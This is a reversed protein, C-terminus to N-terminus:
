PSFKYVRVYDIYAKDIGGNQIFTNKTVDGNVWTNVGWCMGTFLIYEAVHAIAKPDSTQWVVRGNFYYKLFTKSWELGFIHYTTDHMNTAKVSGNGAGKHDNGYGDWHLGCSYTNLKNGEIIDIEAGDNATGDHPGANTMSTGSNPMLWFATQYGNPKVVHMKTEFFGYATSYKEKSNFRGVYYLNSGVGPAKNYNLYINGNKEEVNNESSRITIDNNYRVYSREVTWKLTDIQNDNFEDSFALQWKELTTSGNMLPKSTTPTGKDVFSYQPYVEMSNNKKSCGILIISVVLISFCTYKEKM